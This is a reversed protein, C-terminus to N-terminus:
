TSSVRNALWLTRVAHVRIDRQWKQVASVNSLIKACSFHKFSLFVKKTKKARSSRMNSMPTNPIWFLKSFLLFGLLGLSGWSHVAKMLQTRCGLTFDILFVEM